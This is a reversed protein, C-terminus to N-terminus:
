RRDLVVRGGVVVLRPSGLRELDAYPDGDLVLLDAEHGPIIAGLRDGQELCRAARSTAALLVQGPSLGAHALALLESDIRRSGPIYFNDTGAIVSVGIDRARRVADEASRRMSAARSRLASDPSKAMEEWGSLTPVLCTGRERMLQLTTDSAYTGHEITRVGARVAARIGGDGHAHAEVWLGRKRAALVAEHLDSETFAPMLPDSSALGAVGTAYVKVWEAGQAALVGVMTDIAAPNGTLRWSPGPALRLASDDPTARTLLPQVTPFARLWVDPMIPHLPYGAPLLRSLRMSGARFLERLAVDAYNSSWASRLTTVGGELAWEAARVNDDTLASPDAGVHAHADILGPVVWAGHLDIVSDSPTVRVGRDPQVSVVRGDRITIAIDHRPLTDRGDLLTAHRLVLPATPRQQPAPASAQAAHALATSCLLAPLVRVVARM